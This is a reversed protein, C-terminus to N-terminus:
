GIKPSISSDVITGLFPAQIMAIGIANIANMMSRVYIALNDLTQEM